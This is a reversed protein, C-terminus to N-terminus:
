IRQGCVPWPQAGRESYLARAMADQWYWPAAAPDVGVLWNYHRGAVSNWTSRSFQYAGRYRGTSSVISYNGGSECQRLRALQYNNLVHRTPETVALYQAMEVPTCASLALTLGLGALMIRLRRTM